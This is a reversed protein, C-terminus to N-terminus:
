KKTKKAKELAKQFATAEADLTNWCSSLDDIQTCVEAYTAQHDLSQFASDPGVLHKLNFKTKELCSLAIGLSEAAHVLWTQVEEDIVRVPDVHTLADAM